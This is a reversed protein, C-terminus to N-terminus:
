TQSSHRIPTGKEQTSEGDGNVVSLIGGQNDLKVTFPNVIKVKSKKPHDIATAVIVDDNRFNSYIGPAYVEHENVSEEVSYGRYQKEAFRKSVGYPFECQYFYVRGRDGKWVTQHGNAHEVALGFITVDDGTVEIGTDARYEHEESQWFVPSIHPYNPEETEGLVAHDARWIWLNDGIVHGSHIKLMTDVSINARNGATAGGVRVFIDFMAGPSAADGPDKTGPIGWELLAAQDHETTTCATKESAELMIGAIRVGKVKPRVRVCPSGDNPAELTALGLGLLVQDEHKIELTKTLKYIGPTLVVHKGDDLVKQISETSDESTACRVHAFDVVTEHDGHILPDNTYGTDTERMAKPVRLEFTKMDKKMAVFPKEVRIPSRDVVTVSAETASGAFSDPVSGTCGVYVMSWAGGSAGGALHTNRVLYQQQGGALLEGKGVHCNALHGGSAYAMGDHLVIDGDVVHVRRLPAAQSVAWQLDGGSYAFNEASRWFTDLCTGVPTTNGTTPDTRQHLHKNLAPVFPGAGHVFRVDDASVGLGAVQSYYGVQFRCDTYEGPAFLLVHREASFHRGCTFSTDDDDADQWLPDQTPTIQARIWAPDDTARFIHVSSPWLPPNPEPPPALM